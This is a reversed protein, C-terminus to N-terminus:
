RADNERTSRKKHFHEYPMNREFKTYKHIKVNYPWQYAFRHRPKVSGRDFERLSFARLEQVANYIKILNQKSKIKYM